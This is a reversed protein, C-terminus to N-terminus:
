TKMQFDKYKAMDTPLMELYPYFRLNYRKVIKKNAPNRKIMKIDALTHILM